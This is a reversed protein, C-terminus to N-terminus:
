DTDILIFWYRVLNVVGGNLRQRRRPFWGHIVTKQIDFFAFQNTELVPFGWSISTQPGMGGMYTTYGQQKMLCLRPFDITSIARSLFMMSFWHHIEWGDKIVLSFRWKKHWHGVVFGLFDWWPIGLDGHTESSFHHHSSVPHSPPGQWSSWFFGELPRPNAWSSLFRMRQDFDEFM